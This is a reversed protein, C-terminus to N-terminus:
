RKLIARIVFNTSGMQFLTNVANEVNQKEAISAYGQRTLRLRAAYACRKKARLNVNQKPKQGCRGM